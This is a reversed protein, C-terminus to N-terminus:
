RLGELKMQAEAKGRAYRAIYSEADFKKRASSGSMFRVQGFVPRKFWPRDFKGGIAWAVGAYGNPDRGDLFYKDNLRVAIAYAQEPSPTWELIKKAWYM